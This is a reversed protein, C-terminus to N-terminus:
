RTWPAPARRRARTVRASGAAFTACGHHNPHASGSGWAGFTWGTDIGRARRVVATAAAVAVRISSEAHPESSPSEEEPLVFSAGLDPGVVSASGFCFSRSASSLMLTVGGFPSVPGLTDTLTGTVTEWVVRSTSLFPEPSFSPM